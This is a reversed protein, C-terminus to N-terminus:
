WWLKSVTGWGSEDTVKCLKVQKGADIRSMM